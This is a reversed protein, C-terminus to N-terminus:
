ESAGLKRFLDAFVADRKVFYASRIFHRRQDYSYTIQDTLIPSHVLASPIWEPEVLWAITAVDWIVRSAASLGETCERVIDTLYTGLGSKGHLYANLEPVTTTLHSTVGNCPIHILPVGCDFIVRSAPVDQRLNFERNDPWSFAHGGLWVVVINGVIAPEMLIASAVNTIAGIAVVYLPDDDKAAMARRVLDRAAESERPTREDALYATSGKFAFGDSPIQMFNLIKQIEAYSKEMGDGPGASRENFFPAAYVAEVQVSEPSKLAYALAFQDDVENFTDTDLVMRVKRGPHALRAIRKEPTLANPKM